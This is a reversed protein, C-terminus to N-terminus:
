MKTGLSRSRQGKSRLNSGLPQTLYQTEDMGRDTRRDTRRDTWHRRNERYLILFATSVELKTFVARSL